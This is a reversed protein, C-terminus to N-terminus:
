QTIPLQNNFFFFRVKDFHLFYYPDDELIILNYKCAINYIEKKRETSLIVGTPNAGTPNIYM